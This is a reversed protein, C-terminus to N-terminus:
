QYSFKLSHIVWDASIKEGNDPFISWETDFKKKYQVQVRIAFPVDGSFDKKDQFIWFVRLWSSTVEIPELKINIKALSFHSSM